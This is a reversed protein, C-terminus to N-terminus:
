SKVSRNPPAVVDSFNRCFGRYYGVLGQFRRLEKTTPITYQEVAKIKASVPRVKGQGVVHDLYTVTSQAFECKPLNVTLRANALRNFLARIHEM